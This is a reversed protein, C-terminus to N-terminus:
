SIRGWDKNKKFYVKLSNRLIENAPHELNPDSDLVLKAVSRATSTVTRDEVLNLLQFRMVGSQQTGILDGPGRLRLDAEAIKFGDTTSVMTHIREKGESSLKNGSMLICFSQDAGRGVRGRLQHLQSLGFRETNEIIMVSANPVNVGVEIVTTAVMIQTKKEVFRQMELDKEAPKLRGHVVSIQFEPPRFIDRIQEYGTQLNQLDLTESEEILPYVIYIQRGKEIETRMFDVVEYRKSEFMHVTKVPKRGPPLEDIVSVDLDGYVTMALTRPIPTATMVLIHPLFDPNKSWLKARQMVGFRHQEDIIAIGLKKFVVYDELLAHTGVIIDLDGNKLYELVLKREKGKIAGSLFGVKVGTGELYEQLSQYHQQALIQTPALMTAQFGNDIAILMTLLAVMTKGSGVDGQLLRNMQYGSGVDTRIEKVVRKQAGTLEFPLNNKYFSNFADGIQSFVPGKYKLKRRQKSFLMALQFFFIEEFKLRAISADAEEKTKPQHIKILADYRSQLKIKEILYPPLTEELDSPKLEDFINVILRRRHKNDVGLKTLAETSSYVAELSTKMKSAGSKIMELEPHALTKKGKYISLRGYIIYEKDPVIMKRVWSVGKFWLLEIYGTDDKAVASLRQQRKGKVEKVSTIKAKLLVKEGDRGIDKITTYNTKDVYRFPFTYLLDEVTRINFDQILFKARTPGVGKLFEIPRSLLSSM